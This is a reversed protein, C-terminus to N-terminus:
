EEVGDGDIGPQAGRDNVEVAGTVDDDQGLLAVTAVNQHSGLVNGAAAV